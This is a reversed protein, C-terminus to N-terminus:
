SPSGTPAAHEVRGLHEVCLCGDVPSWSPCIDIYGGEHECPTTLDPGDPISLIGTIWGGCQNCVKFPDAFKIAEHTRTYTHTLM